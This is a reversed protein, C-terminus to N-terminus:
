RAQDPAGAGAASVEDLAEQVPDALSVLLHGLRELAAAYARTFREEEDQTTCGECLATAVGSWADRRTMAFAKPDYAASDLGSQLIHTLVVLELASIRAELDVADTM